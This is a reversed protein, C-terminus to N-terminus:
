GNLQIWVDVAVVTILAAIVVWLVSKKYNLM